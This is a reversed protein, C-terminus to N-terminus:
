ASVSPARGRWASISCSACRLRRLRAVGAGLVGGGSGDAAAASPRVRRSCCTSRSTAAPSVLRCIASVRNMLTLVAPSCTEWMRALSPTAPRTSAAVVAWRMPSSLAGEASFYLGPGRWVYLGRGIHRAAARVLRLATAALGCCRVYSARLASGLM